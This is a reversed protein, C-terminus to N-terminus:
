DNMFDEWSSDTMKITWEDNTLTFEYVLGTNLETFEYFKIDDSSTPIEVYESIAISIDYYKSLIKRALDTWKDTTDLSIENLVVEYGNKEERIWRKANIYKNFEIIAPEGFWAGLSNVIQGAFSHNYDKSYQTVVTYYKVFDEIEEQYKKPSKTLNCSNLMLSGLVLIFVIKKM